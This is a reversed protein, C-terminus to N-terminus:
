RGLRRLTVTRRPRSGVRRRDRSPLMARWGDRRRVLQALLALHSPRPDRAIQWLVHLAYHRLSRAHWAQAIPDFDVRPAPELDYYGCRDTGRALTASQRPGRQRNDPTIMRVALGVRLADSTNPFSAHLVRGHHLSLQGARLEIAHAREVVSPEVVQGRLLQNHADRGLRHRRVPQRHSGPVVWMCGNAATSDTFAIWATVTRDENLEWYAVDQHWAVYGPDRPPKVFLTTRLILLDPGLLTGVPDLVRPDRVLEALCRLLLHPKNRLRISARGSPGLLRELAVRCASAEAATLAEVPALYGDREFTERQMATLQTM